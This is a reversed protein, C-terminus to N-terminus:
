PAVDPLGALYALVFSYSVSSKAANEKLGDARDQMAEMAFAEAIKPWFGRAVLRARDTDYQTPEVATM